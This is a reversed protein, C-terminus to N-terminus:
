AKGSPNVVRGQFLLMGTLSDRIMFLFPHDMNFEENPAPMSRMMVVVATAAAAESGEENVEVFVKQLVKSVYLNDTGAIGSLDAEGQSFMESMGMKMLSESLPLTHTLKFKPFSIDVKSNTKRKKFLSQVDVESLKNELEFVGMKKKPLFVQMVIRNGEYPLELMDCDLEDLGAWNFERGDLTMMDVKESKEESVWFETEITGDKDFKSKWDGKFYIANVLVMRTMASLSDADILDEIKDRTESKVWDNIIRAAKKSEGFDLESISAHYNEHLITKFDELVKFDKM